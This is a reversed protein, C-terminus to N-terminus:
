EPHTRIAPIWRRGAFLAVPIGAVALLWLFNGTAFTIALAVLTIVASALVIYRLPNQAAAEPEAVPIPLDVLLQALEAKTTAAAALASREDFETLSLRGTGAHHALIRM